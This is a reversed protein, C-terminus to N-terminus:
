TTRMLRTVASQFEEDTIDGAVRQADLEQMRHLFTGPPPQDIVQVGAAVEMFRLTEAQAPTLPPLDQNM